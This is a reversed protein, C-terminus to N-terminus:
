ILNRKLKDEKLFDYVEDYKETPNVPLLDQMLLPHRISLEYGNFYALKAYLVAMRAFLERETEFDDRQKVRKPTLLEALAAEIKPQNKELMGEFFDRDPIQAKWPQTKLKNKTDIYEVVRQLGAWDKRMISKAGETLVTIEGAKFEKQYDPYTLQGYQAIMVPHDSLVAAMLNTRLNMRKAIAGYFDDKAWETSNENRKLNAYVDVRGCIYFHQKASSVDNDIFYSKLASYFHYDWITSVPPIANNIHKLISKERFSIQDDFSHKHYDKLM